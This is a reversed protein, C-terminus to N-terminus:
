AGIGQAPSIHRRTTHTPPNACRTCTSHGRTSMSHTDTGSTYCFGELVDVAGDVVNDSFQIDDLLLIDVVIDADGYRTSSPGACGEPLRRRAAAVQHSPHRRTTSRSSSTPLGKLFWPHLVGGTEPVILASVFNPGVLQPM